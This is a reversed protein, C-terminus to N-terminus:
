GPPAQLPTEVDDIGNFLIKLPALNVKRVLPDANQGQSVETSDITCGYLTDQIVDFGSENYTVQVIGMEDGYGSAGGFDAQMQAQFQNWEALYLEADATYKNTGRTKGIPDPHSGYVEVRSRDRKYNIAKFGIYTFGFLKLEISAFSHRVGNVLPYLIPTTM